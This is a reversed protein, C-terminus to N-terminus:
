TPVLWRIRYLREGPFAVEGAPNQLRLTSTWWQKEQAATFALRGSKPHIAVGKVHERDGLTVHKRFSENTRDFVFVHHRTTVLLEDASPVASLDHGDDDPLEFTKELALSPSKTSWDKLAYRRLEKGGLAWLRERGADWVVGHASPLPAEAILTDSKMRDFIMLRNGTKSLSSAAVIRGSPLMEIGHANPVRAHWLARGMARDVLAVAGGSSSIMITKGGDTPRCDDTTGFLKRIPEPLEACEKGRWSWVIVV